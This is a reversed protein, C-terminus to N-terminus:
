LNSDEPTYKFLGPLRQAKKHKALPRPTDSVPCCAMFVGNPRGLCPFRQSTSWGLSKRGGCESPKKAKTTGCAKRTTDFKPVKGLLQHRSAWRAAAKLHRLHRAMAM